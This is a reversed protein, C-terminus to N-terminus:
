DDPLPVVVAAKSCRGAAIRELLKEVECQISNERLLRVYVHARALSIFSDSTTPRM